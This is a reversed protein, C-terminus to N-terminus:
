RQASCGEVAVGLPLVWEILPWDKRRILVDVAAVASCLWVNDVLPWSNSRQMEGCVILDAFVAPWDCPKCTYWPPRSANSAVAKLPKYVTAYNPTFVSSPLTDGGRPMVITSVDIPLYRHVKDVVQRDILTTWTRHLRMTKHGAAGEAKRHRQFSDEAIQSNSGLSARDSAWTILAPTVRWANEAAVKVLQQVAVTQFCSRRRMIGCMTETRGDMIKFTDYDDKLQALAQPGLTPDVFLASRAPWGQFVM